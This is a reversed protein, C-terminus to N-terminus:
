VHDDGKVKKPAGRRPLEFAAADQAEILWQRGIWHARILGADIWGRVTRDCVKFQTAVEGTTMLSRIMIGM